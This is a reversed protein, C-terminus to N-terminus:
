VLGEVVYDQIEEALEKIWIEPAILIERKPMKTTGYQHFKAIEGNISYTAWTDHADIEPGVIAVSTFLAGTRVLTPAGPFHTAKWAAYKPSLPAWGCALLGQSTYNLSNYKRLSIGAEAFAPEHNKMRHKMAKLKDKVDDLGDEDTRLNLLYGM